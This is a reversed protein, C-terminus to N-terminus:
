FSLNSTFEGRFFQFWSVDIIAAARMDSERKGLTTTDVTLMIAKFGLEEVKKILEASKERKPHM